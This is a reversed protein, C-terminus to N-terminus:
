KNALQVEHLYAYLAALEVDDMRGYVQWPMEASLVKGSPTAGTRLASVFQEQTWGKVAGLHPGQPLPPKGGQLDAGHCDRCGLTNLVYEGYAASAEKPPASVSGVPKADINLLNVGLFFATLLSPDTVPTENQVAPQSRLFAILAQVDEDSFYKFSVVPMLLPRGNQHTGERIARMIEGDTWDRLEGGPTLNPAHIVGM